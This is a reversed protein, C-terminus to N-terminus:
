TSSCRFPFNPAVLASSPTLLIQSGKQLYFLGQITFQLITQSTMISHLLNSQLHTIKNISLTALAQSFVLLKLSIHTYGNDNVALQKSFCYGVIEVTPICLVLFFCFIKVRKGNLLLFNYSLENIILIYKFIIHSMLQYYRLPTINTFINTTQLEM